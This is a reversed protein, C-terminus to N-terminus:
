VVLAFCAVLLSRLPLTRALPLSACESSPVDHLRFEFVCRAVFSGVVLCLWAAGEVALSLRADEEKEWRGSRLGPQLTKAWRFACQL